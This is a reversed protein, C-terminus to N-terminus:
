KKGKGNKQQETTKVSSSVIKHTLLAYLGTVIDTLAEMELLEPEKGKEPFPERKWQTLFVLKLDHTNNGM